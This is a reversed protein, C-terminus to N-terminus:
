SRVSGASLAQDDQSELGSRMAGLIEGSNVPRGFYYGQGMDCGMTTLIEVTQADEIGEAVVAFGFSHALDIIARVVHRDTASAELKEVFSRDIKLEDAPLTRFYAFSSQGTGFDDISIRVGLTRLDRLIAFSREPNNMVASETIELTLSSGRVNWLNLAGRVRESFDVTRLCVPSLNVAVSTNFDLSRWEALQQLASNICSWTLDEILNTDEAIPIFVEPSVRGLEPSFWRALAEVGTCNGRLLSYKPQYHLEIEGREVAQALLTEIQWNQNRPGPREAGAVAVSSVRQETLGLALEATWLLHEPDTGDKPYAAVGVSLNITGIGAHLPRPWEAARLVKNAGLMLQGEDTIQPILFVFDQDGIRAVWDARRAVENLRRFVENLLQDSAAYGGGLTVRRLGSIRVILVGVAHGTSSSGDILQQLKTLVTERTLVEPLM